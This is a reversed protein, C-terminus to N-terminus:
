FFRRFLFKRFSFLLLAIIALIVWFPWRYRVVKKYIDTEEVSSISSNVVNVLRLSDRVYKNHYHQQYYRAISDIKVEVVVENSTVNVSAKAPGSASTYSIPRAKGLSDCDVPIRIITEVKDTIYEKKVVTDVVREVRSSLRQLSDLQNSLVVLRSHDVTTRKSGCSFLLISIFLFFTFKGKSM